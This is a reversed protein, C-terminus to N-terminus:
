AQTVVLGTRIEGALIVRDYAAAGVDQSNGEM